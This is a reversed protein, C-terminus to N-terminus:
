INVCLRQHLFFNLYAFNGQLAKCKKKKKFENPHDKAFQIYKTLEQVKKVTRDYVKKAKKRRRVETPVIHRLQRQKMELITKDGKM